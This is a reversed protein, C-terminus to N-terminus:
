EDSAGEPWLCWDPRPQIPRANARYHRRFEDLHVASLHVAEELVAWYM